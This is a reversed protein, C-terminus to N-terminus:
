VAAPGDSSQRPPKTGIASNAGPFGNKRLKRGVERLTTEDIPDISGDPLPGTNLLLNCNAAEANALMDMVEDATRHEVDTNAAYGWHRTTLTTCIENRPNDKNGEWAAIAREIVHAPAGHAKLRDVLAGSTHEPSAFDEQGNAGNKFAILTAPQLSRILDYTESLPFLDPRYYYGMIPDFWVGAVPGYNTLLERLQNHVFDMYIKFDEDQSFRYSPEPVEYAPRAFSFTNENVPMFYPHRWDCAYSYYLFLGLGRQECAQALEAVLDRGAPANLSNFDTEATKFLCFSDHHRTTLNIYKMGAAVALDAIYDASFNEASFQDALEAYDSVPIKERFMVWEGRGLQSYVGYHLFLGFRAKKFWALAAKRPDTTYTESYNALYSPISSSM